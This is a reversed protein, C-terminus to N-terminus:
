KYRVVCSGASIAGGVRIVGTRASGRPLRNSVSSMSTSEFEDVVVFDRPVVIKLSGMNIEADIEMRFGKDFEYDRFDLVVTGAIVRVTYREGRAWEGRKKITSMNCDIHEAQYTRAPTVNRPAGTRGASENFGPIVQALTGVVKALEAADSARNVLAVASEFRELDIANSAFLASLHEIARARPDELENM